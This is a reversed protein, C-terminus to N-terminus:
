PSAFSLNRLMKMMCWFMGIFPTMPFTLSLWISQYSYANFMMALRLPTFSLSWQPNARQAAALDKFFFNQVDIVATVAVNRSLTDAVHNARGPLYKITPRFEDTILFWRALRDSNKKKKKKVKSSNHSHQTSLTYQFTTGVSLTEFIVFYWFSLKCKWTRSPTTPSPLISLVARM